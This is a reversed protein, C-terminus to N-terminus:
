LVICEQVDLICYMELVICEQLDLICYLGTWRSYM